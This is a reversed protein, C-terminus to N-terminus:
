EYCFANSLSSELSELLECSVHWEDIHFIKNSFGEPGVTKEYIDVMPINHTKCHLHLTENFFSVVESVLQNEVLSNVESYKPAPINCLALSHAKTNVKHLWLFFEKITKKIIDHVSIRYKNAAPIFGESNRCDIEGFFVLVKSGDPIRQLNQKTIEKFMNNVPMALHHMKAGITLLPHFYYKNSNISIPHYAFSLAHSNGVTYIKEYDTHHESTLRSLLGKLLNSYGLTAVKTPSTKVFNDFSLISQAAKQFDGRLYHYLQSIIFLDADWEGNNNLDVHECDVGLQTALYLMNYLADQNNRNLRHSRIFCELAQTVEGNDQHFIGKKNLRRSIKKLSQKLNQLMRTELLRM